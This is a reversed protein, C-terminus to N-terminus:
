LRFKVPTHGDGGSGTLSGGAGPTKNLAALAYDLLAPNKILSKKISKPLLDIIGGAPSASIAQGIAANEARAAGSQVGMFYAKLSATFSRAFMESISEAVVAVPSPQNEGPPSIFDSFVRTVRNIKAWAVGIAAVILLNCILIATLLWNV